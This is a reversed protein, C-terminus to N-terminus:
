RKRETEPRQLRKTSWAELTVEHVGGSSTVLRSVLYTQGGIVVVDESPTVTPVDATSIQLVASEAEGERDPGAELTSIGPTFIGIVTAGNYTLAVGNQDALSFWDVQM